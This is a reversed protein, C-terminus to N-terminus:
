IAGYNALGGVRSEKKKRKRRGHIIYNKFLKFWILAAAIMLYKKRSGAKCEPSGYILGEL